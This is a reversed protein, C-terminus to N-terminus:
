PAMSLDAEREEAEPEPEAIVVRNRGLRKAEYLAIDATRLMAELDEGAVPLLPAVGASLTVVGVGENGAHPIALAEVAARLREIAVGASSPPDPLLIAIEEGGYRFALDTARCARTVAGGIARLVDDGAVHGYRDNFRKFNDVDCMAVSYDPGYRRIMDRLQQLQERLCLRNGLGTLADTRAARALDENLRQLQANQEVIQRQLTTVRQAGILCKELDGIDLPKTLYDDAGSRMGILAHQKQSLITLFIFYVYPLDPESRLRRCLDLGDLGPMDWNSIVVDIGGARVLEWAREGDAVIVCEHGLNQVATEALIQSMPSDEAVLVRM